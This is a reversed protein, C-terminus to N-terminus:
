GRAYEGVEALGAVRAEISGLLERYSDRFIEIGKRELETTLADFDVDAGALEDMLRRAPRANGSLSGGINGHDAFTYRDLSFLLTVNVNVGRATLEEIATIGADTAAVKILLNPVGLQDNVGLPQRVTAEADDALDPTCEFSVFGDRGDSLEYVARLADAARHVDELALEFFIAEPDRLGSEVILGLQRDYRETDSIAKAFITPNSTAGTVSQERIMRMFEGSDLLDRSLDDLWISVGADQLHRLRNMVVRGAHDNM